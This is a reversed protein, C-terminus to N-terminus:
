VEVSKIPGFNNNTVVSLPSQIHFSIYATQHVSLSCTTKNILMEPILLWKPTIILINKNFKYIFLM